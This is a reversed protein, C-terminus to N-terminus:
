LGALAIGTRKARKKPKPKALFKAINEATIRSIFERAEDSNYANHPTFVVQPRRLLANSSLFRSIEKMRAAPLAIREGGSGRVRDAIQAGLQATAGGRFVKEEELVDLGAGGVQGSDIAELLAESEILAGRATNILLVGRRCLALTQRNLMHFTEANLPVHLTILDCNRLIDDFSTYRFDLLETFLPNPKADYALVNMGFASAIRIVHIGVRGAGVVGLTRGRLDIGRIKEHSVKGAFAAETSERLRRSLSLMLAFTHEAVTNEGYGAVNAVEIGAAQCAVTDVHDCGTSRTTILRLSPHAALFACDIRDNIFISLIEVDAPVDAVSACFELNYREFRGAFFATEEPETSVFCIKRSKM